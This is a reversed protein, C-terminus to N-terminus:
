PGGAPKPKPRKLFAPEVGAAKRAQASAKAARKRSKTTLAERQAAIAEAAKPPIAIRVSGAADIYQLFITDGQERRRLTQIIFTQAEGTLPKAAVVTTPKVKAVDPLGTLEGLYRDFVDLKKYDDPSKNV